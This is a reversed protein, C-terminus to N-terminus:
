PQVEVTQGFPGKRGGAGVSAWLVPVDPPQPPFSSRLDTLCVLCAPPEEMEELYDFVPLHSTGGGGRPELTLEGDQPTWEQVHQIKSDHFLITLKSPLTECIAQVEAAFVDLEKQRISGSTDIAVLVEGLAEGDLGPLYLGAQIFRRNPKNWNHEAKIRQSFFERLVDQWPVKPRLLADIARQMGAPLAGRKKAAEEAQAVAVRAESEAQDCESQSGGGPDMVGGMRGPDPCPDGEGDGQGQGDGQRNPQQNGKRQLLDYYEEASLNKPFDAHPGQGPLLGEPVITYGAERLLHNAALDCALNWQEKDRGGRRAHHACAIHLIEHALVTELEGETHADLWQPNFLLRKGDTAATQVRWDPELTLGLGLTAFFNGRPERSMLFRVRQQALRDAARKEYELRDAAQQLRDFPNDSM